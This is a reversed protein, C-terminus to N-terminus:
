PVVQTETDADAVATVVHSALTASGLTAGVTTEGPPVNWVGFTGALSASFKSLELVTASTVASGNQEVVLDASGLASGACDQVEVLLLGLGTQQKPAGLLTIEGLQATSLMVVPVNPQDAVLLAAPYIYTPREGTKSASLYVDLASGGTPEDAFSWTGASGTPGTTAVASGSAVDVMALSVGSTPTMGGTLSVTDATGSITIAAAASGAASGECALTSADANRTDTASADPLTATNRVGDDSREGLSCGAGVLAAFWAGHKM